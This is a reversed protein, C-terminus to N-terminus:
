LRAICGGQLLKTLLRRHQLAHPVGVDQGEIAHEPTVLLRAAGRMAKIDTVHQLKVYTWSIHIHLVDVDVDEDVNIYLVDVDIHGM